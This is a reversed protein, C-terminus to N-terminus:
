RAHEETPLGCVFAHAESCSAELWADWAARQEEYTWRLAWDMPVSKGPAMIGTAQYFLEALAEYRELPQPDLYAALFTRPDTATM